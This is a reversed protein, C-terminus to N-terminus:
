HPLGTNLRAWGWTHVNDGLELDEWRRVMWNTGQLTMYLNCNGVIVAHSTDSTSRQIVLRYGLNRYFRDAGASGSDTPTWTLTAPGKGQFLTTLASIDRNRDWVTDAGSAQFPDFRFTYAPDTTFERDFNTISKMDTTAKLNVLVLHPEVPIQWPVPPGSIPPESDRVKFLGCAGVLVAVGIGIVGVVLIRRKMM